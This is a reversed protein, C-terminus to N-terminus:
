ITVGARRAASSGALFGTSFAAQLNYGGTYGDIDMVEGAFFLGPVKLSEMTKPNIHEISAGGRTAMAHNFGEVAHITVEFATLSDILAKRTERSIESPHTAPKISHIDFVVLALREPLGLGQILRKINNSGSSRSELIFSENIVSAEESVLSFRFIDGPLAFRSIDLVGPGSLGTHTFLIDGTNKAELRGKRILVCKSSKVSLGALESIYPSKIIFPALAPRQAVNPHGAMETLLSGSGDSGTAPYSKGGAAIILNGALYEESDTIVTFGDTQRKISLAPCKTLLEAGSKNIEALLMRLIDSSLMSSPFVKGDPRTLTRIGRSNLLAILKEPPFASLAPKLFRDTGPYKDLFSFIDGTHTINCQGSGSILLKRGPLAKKELILCDPGANAAAFLGAPGAGIIITKCSKM